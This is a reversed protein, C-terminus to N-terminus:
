PKPFAENSGAARSFYKFPTSVVCVFDVFEDDKKQNSWIAPRWINKINAYRVIDVPTESVVRFRYTSGKNDKCQDASQLASVLVISSPMVKINKDKAPKDTQGNAVAFLLLFVYITIITKM